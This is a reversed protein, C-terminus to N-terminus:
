IKVAWSVLSQTDKVRKREVGERKMSGNSALEREREREGARLGSVNRRVDDTAAPRKRSTQKPAMASNRRSAFFPFGNQKLLTAEAGSWQM